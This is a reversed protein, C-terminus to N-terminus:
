GGLAARVAGAARDRAVSAGTLRQVIDQAAEIAVDEITALAEVQQGKLREEAEAIRGAAVADAAKVKAEAEIAGSAKAEAAVKQAAARAEIMRTRYAEDTADATERATKAATLDDAIRRDRGDMTAEIKPLMAKAIGFYILGFVVLMWFIQSAYIQALQAIQPM